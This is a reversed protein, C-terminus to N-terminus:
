ATESRAESKSGARIRIADERRNAVRAEWHVVATAVLAGVGALLMIWLLTRSEFVFWLPIAALLLVVAGSFWENRRRNPDGWAPEPLRPDNPSRQGTHRRVLLQWQPEDPKRLIELNRDGRLLWDSSLEPGATDVALHLEEYARRRLTRIPRTERAPDAKAAPTAELARGLLLAYFCGANYHANWGASTRFLGLDIV